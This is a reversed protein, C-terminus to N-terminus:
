CLFQGLHISATRMLVQAPPIARHNLVSAKRGFSCNGCVCLLECSDIVGTIPSGVGDYLPVHLYFMLACLIQTNHLRHLTM